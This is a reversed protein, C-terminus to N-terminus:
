ASRCPPCVLMAMLCTRVDLGCLPLSLQCQVRDSDVSGSWLGEHWCAVNGRSSRWAHSLATGSVRRLSEPSHEHSKQLSRERMRFSTCFLMQAVSAEERGSGSGTWTYSGHLTPVHSTTSHTEESPAAVCLQPYLWSPSGM